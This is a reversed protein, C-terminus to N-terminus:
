KISELTEDHCKLLIQGLMLEDQSLNDHNACASIINYTHIYIYM